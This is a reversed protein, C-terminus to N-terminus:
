WNKAKELLYVDIKKRNFKAEEKRGAVALDIRNGKIASGTDAAYAYGYGKVYLRTGLPIVKPDVAVLGRRLEYGLFTTDSPVTREGVFYGTARMVLKQTKLLDYTKAPYNNQRNFLTLTYISHRQIKRKLVWESIKVGDHLTTRLTKVEEMQIGKEMEVPRLNAKLQVHWEIHPPQKLSTTEITHTVRTVKVANTRELPTNLPPISFDDGKLDIHERQLLESVTHAKVHLHRTTGDVTLDVTPSSWWHVGGTLLILLTGIGLLAFPHRRLASLNLRTM